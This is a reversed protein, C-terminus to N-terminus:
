SMEEEPRHEHGTRLGPDRVALGDEDIWVSRRWASAVSPHLAAETVERGCYRCKRTEGM